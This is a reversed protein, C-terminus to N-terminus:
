VYKMIEKVNLLAAQEEGISLQGQIRKTEIEKILRIIVDIFINNALMGETIMPFYVM